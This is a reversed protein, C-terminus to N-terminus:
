RYAERTQHWYRLLLWFSSCLFSTHKSLINFPNITWVSCCVLEEKGGYLLNGCPPALHHFTSIPSHSFHIHWFLCYDEKIHTCPIFWWKMHFDRYLLICIHLIIYVNIKRSSTSSGGTMKFHLLFCLVQIMRQMQPQLLKHINERWISGSNSFQIYRFHCVGYEQHRWVGSSRLKISLGKKGRPIDLYKSYIHWKKQSCCKKM